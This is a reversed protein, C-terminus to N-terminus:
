VRLYGGAVHYMGIGVSGAKCFYCIMKLSSLMKICNKENMYAADDVALFCVFQLRAPRRYMRAALRYLRALRICLRAPRVCCVVFSLCM